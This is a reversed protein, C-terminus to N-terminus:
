LHSLFCCTRGSPNSGAQTRCRMFFFSDLTEVRQDGFQVGAVLLRDM